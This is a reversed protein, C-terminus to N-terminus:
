HDFLLVTAGRAPAHISVKGRFFDLLEIRTAGRAPAHISVSRDPVPEVPRPDRGARARPNFGSFDRLAIPAHTAGRAPAHISVGDMAAHSDRTRTAGRAPAHISVSSPYDTGQRRQTAGRAPAHISVISHEGLLTLILTAGRAPAHISVLGFVHKILVGELRAGRPRTSQFLISIPSTHATNTDRGARARPNFCELLAPRGRPQTAGRAPAHISVM